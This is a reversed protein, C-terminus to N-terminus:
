SIQVWGHRIAYLIAEARSNVGLKNYVSSVHNQVTRMTLTLKQAIGENDMGVALLCIVEMERATLSPFPEEPPKDVGLARHVVTETIRSSLWVEGHSVAQIASALTELTDDKLVYGTAGAKLLGFIMQRDNHVTLILVPTTNGSARLRRTVELGNIDPLNVDLVLVDPSVEAVLRLAQTGNTGEGVIQIEPTANLVLRMGARVIPHDDVIVIRIPM